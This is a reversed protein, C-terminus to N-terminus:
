LRLSCRINTINIVELRKTLALADDHSVSTDKEILNKVDHALTNFYRGNDDIHTSLAFCTLTSFWEAQIADAMLFSSRLFSRGAMESLRAELDSVTPRDLPDASWCVELIEWLENWDESTLHGIRQPPKSGDKAISDKEYPPKQTFMKHACIRSYRRCILLISLFRTYQAHLRSFIVRSVARRSIWNQHRGVVTSRKHLPLLRPCLQRNPFASTAWIVIGM